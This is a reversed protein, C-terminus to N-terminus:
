SKERSLLGRHWSPSVALSGQRRRLLPRPRAWSFFSAESRSPFASGCSTVSFGSEVETFASCEAATGFSAWWRLCMRGSGNLAQRRPHRASGGEEGKRTRATRKAASSTRALRTCLVYGEDDTFPSRVKRLPATPPQLNRLPEKASPSCRTMATLMMPSPRITAATMRMIMPPSTAQIMPTMQRMPPTPASNMVRCCRRLRM